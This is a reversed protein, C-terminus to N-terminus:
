YSIHVYLYLYSYTEVCYDIKGGRYVFGWSTCLLYCKINTIFENNITMGWSVFIFFKGVYNGDINIRIVQLYLDDVPAYLIVNFTHYLALITAKFISKEWRYISIMFQYMSALFMIDSLVENSVIMVWKELLLM